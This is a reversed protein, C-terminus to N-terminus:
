RRGWQLWFSTCFVKSVLENEAAKLPPGMSAANACVDECSAGCKGSSKAAAGNFSSRRRAISANKPTNEAAKLPPGM